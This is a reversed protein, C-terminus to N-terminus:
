LRAKLHGSLEAIWEFQDLSGHPSTELPELLVRFPAIRIHLVKAMPEVLDVGLSQVLARYGIPWRDCGDTQQVVPMDRADQHAFRRAITWAHRTTSTQSGAENQNGAQGRQNHADDDKGDRRRLRHGEPPEGIRGQRSRRECGLTHVHERGCAKHARGDDDDAQEHQCCPEAVSLTHAALRSSADRYVIPRHSLPQRDAARACYNTSDPM